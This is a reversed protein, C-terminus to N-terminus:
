TFSLRIGQPCLGVRAMISFDGPRIGENNLYDVFPNKPFSGKYQTNLM